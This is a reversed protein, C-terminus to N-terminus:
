PPALAANGFLVNFQDCWIAVGRYMAPDFNAPLAQNFTGVKTSEGGDAGSDLLVRLGGEVQSTSTPNPERTLYVFVDPGQTQNYNEFRLFFGDGSQLIKVTGSVHHGTKGSFSGTSLLQAEEPAAENLRTSSEPFFYMKGVVLGAIVAIAGGTAVLIWHKRRM